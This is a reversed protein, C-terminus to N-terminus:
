WVIHLLDRSFSRPTVAVTLYMEMIEVMTRNRVEVKRRRRGM